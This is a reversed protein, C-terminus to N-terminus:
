TLKETLSCKLATVHLYASMSHIFMRKEDMKHTKHM